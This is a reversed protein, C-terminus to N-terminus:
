VLVGGVRVRCQLVSDLAGQFALQIIMEAIGPMVRNGPGWPVAVGAGGDTRRTMM